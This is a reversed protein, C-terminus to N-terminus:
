EQGAAAVYSDSLDALLVGRAARHDPALNTILPHEHLAFLPTGAAATPVGRLVLFGGGSLDLNLPRM